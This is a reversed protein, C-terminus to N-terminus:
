KGAKMLEILNRKDSEFLHLSTIHMTFTGPFVGNWNGPDKFQLLQLIWLLLRITLYVDDRFHRIFDCSRMPYIVHFRGDRLIFHYGLTCPVRKSEAAAALDEPFWVPVYGQRTLPDRLFLSVLDNLDGYPFRIGQIEELPLGDDHPLRGGPSQGAMKPWYREAYSHDFQPDQEGERRHTDASASYPWQRWTRGPNLPQGCVRDQIFHADAWPLSPRIAQQLLRLHMSDDLELTFSYNFIEPMPQPAPVSQWSMAQVSKATTFKARIDAIVAEFSAKLM